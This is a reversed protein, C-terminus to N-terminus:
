IGLPLRLLPHAHGSAFLAVCSYVVSTCEAHLPMTLPRSYIAHERLATAWSAAFESPGTQRSRNGKKSYRM